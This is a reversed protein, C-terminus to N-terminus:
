RRQESWARYSAYHHLAFGGFSRMRGVARATAALERELDAPALHDFSLKRIANPATEIGIVVPKGIREGYDLEDLAHGVLGDPGQAHDRYDMLAVYDYLDQLHQSVPKRVGHRELAIGDLWFPIAPGMPLGPAAADRLRVLAESLDVFGDLLAMKRSAWEDLVHPEIDLSVGDFREEPAAVANYALVRQLMALAAKRQDPLVYRETHLYSSGLLAQVRLGGAHMRRLLARYAQPQEAILTRGQWGDAYLYATDIAHARLFGIADAGAAPRELMAYSEAEWIWIARSPAPEARAPASPGCWCFLCFVGALPLRRRIAATLVTVLM